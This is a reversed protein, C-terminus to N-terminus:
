RVTDVADRRHVLDAESLNLSSLDDDSLEELIEQMTNHRAGATFIGRRRWLLSAAFSGVAIGLAIIVMSAISALGGTANNSVIASVGQFAVSGPVVMSMAPVATLASTRTSWLADLNGFTVAVLAGVVPGLLSNGFRATAWSAWYSCFCGLLVLFYFRRHIRMNILQTITTLFLGGSITLFFLWPHDDASVQRAPPAVQVAISGLLVQRAILMGAALEILTLFGGIMRSLGAIVNNAALETTAMSIALGPIYAVLISLMVGTVNITAVYQNALVSLTQSCLGQFTLHFADNWLWKRAAMRILGIPIALFFAVAVDILRGTIAWTLSTTRVTSALLLWWLSIYLNPAAICEAIKKAAKSPVLAGTAVRSALQSVRCLKQLNIGGPKIRLVATRSRSGRYQSISCQLGTPHCIFNSHFHFLDCIQTLVAEIEHTPAGYLLLGRGVDLLFRIVIDEEESAIGTLVHSQKKHRKRSRRVMKKLDKKFLMHPLTELSYLAGQLVSEAGHSVSTLDDGAGGESCDLDMQGRQGDQLLASNHPHNQAAFKDLDHLEISYFPHLVQHGRLDRVQGRELDIADLSSTRLLVPVSRAVPSSINGGEGPQHPPFAQLRHPHTNVVKELVVAGEERDQQQDCSEVLAAALLVSDGSARRGEEMRDPVSM